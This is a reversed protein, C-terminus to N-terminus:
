RSKDLKIYVLVGGGTIICGKIKFYYEYESAYSIDFQVVIQQSKLYSSKLIENRM